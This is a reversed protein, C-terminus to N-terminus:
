SRDDFLSFPCLFRGSSRETVVSGTRFFRAELIGLIANDPCIPVGSMLTLSRRDVGYLMSLGSLSAMAVYCLFGNDDTIDLICGVSSIPGESM